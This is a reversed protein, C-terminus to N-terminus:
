LLSCWASAVKQPRKCWESPVGQVIAPPERFYARATLSQLQQLQTKSPASEWTLVRGVSSIAGITPQDGQTALSRLLQADFLETEAKLQTRTLVVLINGKTMQWSTGLVDHYFGNRDTLLVRGENRHVVVIFDPSPRLGTLQFGRLEAKLLIRSNINSHPFAERLVPMLESIEQQKLSFVLIELREARKAVRDKRLLFVNNGRAGLSQECGPCSVTKSGPSGAEPVHLRRFSLAEDRVELFGESTAICVGCNICVYRQPLNQM